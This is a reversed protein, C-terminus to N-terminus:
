IVGMKMKTFDISIEVSLWAESDRNKALHLRMINRDHEDPTQCLAVIVDAIMAKAFSEAIDDISITKKALSGRNAQTATWVPVNYEGALGRLEEFILEQEFRKENYHRSSRMIDGYDVVILGPPKGSASVLDIHRRLDTPSASKTPYEVITVSGGFQRKFRQVKRHVKSFHQKTQTPRWLHKYPIGTLLSDLRAGIKQHAMEFTYIIVNKGVVLGGKAVNILAISKGRGPPALFIGLEKPRLGSGIVTDLSGILTPVPAYEIAVRDFARRRIENFYDHGLEPRRGVKLAQEVLTQIQEYEGSSVLQVGDTIAQEFARHRAFEAVKSRIYKREKVKTKVVKKLQVHAYRKEDDTLVKSRSILNELVWASPPGSYKEYYKQCFKVIDRYAPDPFYEPKILDFHDHLFNTDQFIMAVVKRSFPAGFDYAKSKVM